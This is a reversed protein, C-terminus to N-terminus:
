KGRGFDRVLDRGLVPVINKTVVDVYFGMTYRKGLDTVYVTDQNGGMHGVTMMYEGPAGLVSQASSPQLNVTVIAALLLVNLCILGVILKGKM